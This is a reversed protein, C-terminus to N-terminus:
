LLLTCCRLTKPPDRAPPRLWALRFSPHSSADFTVRTYPRVLRAPDISAHGHLSDMADHVLADAISGERDCAALAAAPAAAAAHEKSQHVCGMGASAHLPLALCAAILLSLARSLIRRPM